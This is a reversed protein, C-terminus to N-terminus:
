NKGLWDRYWILFVYLVLAAICLGIPAFFWISNQTFDLFGVTGFTQVYDTATLAERAMNENISKTVSHTHLFIGGFQFLLTLVLLSAYIWRFRTLEYHVLKLYRNM